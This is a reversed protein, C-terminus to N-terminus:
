RSVGSNVSVSVHISITDSVNGSGSRRQRQRQTASTSAAAATAASSSDSGNDSDGGNDSDHETAARAWRRSPRRPSEGDGDLGATGRRRRRATADIAPTARAGRGRRRAGPGPRGPRATRRTPRGPRPLAAAGIGRPPSAPRPAPSIATLDRHSAPPLTSTPWPRAARRRVCAVDPGPRTWRGPARSVRGQGVPSWARAQRSPRAPGAWSSSGM